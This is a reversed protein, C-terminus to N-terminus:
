HSFVESILCVYGVKSKKVKDGLADRIYKKEAEAIRPHEDPTDHVLYWWAVCWLMTLAAPVYFASAWSCKEILPGTLCWTVVTGLTGGM